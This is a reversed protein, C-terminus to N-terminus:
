HKRSTNTRKTLSTIRLTANALIFRATAYHPHLLVGKEAFEIARDVEKIELYRDALRAYLMSASNENVKQKLWDIEDAYSQM